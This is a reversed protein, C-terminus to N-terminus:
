RCSGPQNRQEPWPERGQQPELREPLRQRSVLAQQQELPEPEQQEPLLRVPEQLAQLVLVLQLALVPQAQPLPVPAQQPLVPVPLAQQQM